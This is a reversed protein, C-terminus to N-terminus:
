DGTEEEGDGQEAEDRPPQDVDDPQLGLPAQDLAVDAVRDAAGHLRQVDVERAPLEPVGQVEHRLLTQLRAEAAEVRVHVVRALPEAPADLVVLVVPVGRQEHEDVLELSVRLVPGHRSRHVRVAHAVEGLDSAEGAEAGDHTADEADGEEEDRHAVHDEVGVVEGDGVRAVVLAFM